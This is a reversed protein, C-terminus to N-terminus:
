AHLALVVAMLGVVGHGVLGTAARARAPLRTGAAGAVLALLAHWCASAVFVGLAFGVRAAGSDLGGGLGAVVLVVYLVTAPNVLTVAAFRLGVAVPGGRDDPAVAGGRGDAAVVTARRSRWARCWGWGAVVALAAAAVLRVQTMRPDVWDAAASGAVVAVCAYLLDTCAVGAAAAVGRVRGGTLAEQVVLVGVAGVPVALGLGAVVGALGALGAVLVDVLDM